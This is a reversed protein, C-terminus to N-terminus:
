ERRGNIWNEVDVEDYLVNQGMRYSPPGKKKKRWRELTRTSIGARFAVERSGLWKRSM